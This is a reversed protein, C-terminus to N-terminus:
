VPEGEVAERIRWIMEDLQKEMANIVFSTAPPDFLLRVYLCTYAQIQQVLNSKDALPWTLSQWDVQDHPAIHTGMYLIGGVQALNALAANIYIELDKDFSDDEEPVGVVKKVDAFVSM